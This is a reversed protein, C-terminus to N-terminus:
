VWHQQVRCRGTTKGTGSAPDRKGVGTAPLTGPEASPLAKKAYQGEWSVGITLSHRDGLLQPKVSCRCASELRLELVKDRCAFATLLQRIARVSRLLSLRLIWRDWNGDGPRASWVDRLPATVRPAHLITPVPLARVVETLRVSKNTQEVRNVKVLQDGGDSRCVNCKACLCYNRCVCSPGATWSRRRRLAPKLVM